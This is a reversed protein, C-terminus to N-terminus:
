DACRFCRGTLVHIQIRSFKMSLLATTMTHSTGSLSQPCKSIVVLAIEKSVNLHIRCDIHNLKYRVYRDSHPSLLICINPVPRCSFFNLCQYDDAPLSGIVSVNM